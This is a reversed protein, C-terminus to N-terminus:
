EDGDQGRTCREVREAPGAHDANPSLARLRALRLEALAVASRIAFLGGDRVELALRPGPEALEAAALQELLDRTVAGGAVADLVAAAVPDGVNGM